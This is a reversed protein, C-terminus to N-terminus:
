WLNRSRGSGGNVWATAPADEFWRSPCVRGPGGARRWWAPRRTVYSFVNIGVDDLEGDVLDAINKLSGQFPRSSIDRILEVVKEGYTSGWENQRRLPQSVSRRQCGLVTQREVVGRPRCSSSARFHGQDTCVLSEETGAEGLRRGLDDPAQAEWHGLSREAM